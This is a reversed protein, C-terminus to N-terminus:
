NFRLKQIVIVSLLFKYSTDSYTFDGFAALNTVRFLFFAPNKQTIQILFLPSSIQIQSLHIKCYFLVFVEEGLIFWWHYSISLRCIIPPCDVSQKGVSNGVYQGVHQKSRIRKRVWIIRHIVLERSDQSVM